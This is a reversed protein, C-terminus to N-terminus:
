GYSLIRQWRSGGSSTLMSPWKNGRGSDMEPLATPNVVGSTGQSNSAGPQAPPHLSDLRSLLVSHRRYADDLLAKISHLELSLSRAEANPSLSVAPLCDQTSMTWTIEALLINDM